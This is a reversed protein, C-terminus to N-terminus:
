RAWDIMPVNVTMGGDPEADVGERHEAEHERDADDDIVRDDHDLGDHM